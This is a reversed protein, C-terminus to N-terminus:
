ERSVSKFVASGKKDSQTNLRTQNERELFSNNVQTKAMDEKERKEQDRLFGLKLLFDNNRRINTARTREMGSLEM